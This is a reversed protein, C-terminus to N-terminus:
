NLSQIEKACYLRCLVIILAAQLHDIYVREMLRKFDGPDFFVKIRCIPPPPFNKKSSLKFFCPPSAIKECLSWLSLVGICSIVLGKTRSTRSVQVSNCKELMPAMVSAFM